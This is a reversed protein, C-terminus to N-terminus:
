KKDAPYIVVMRRDGAGESSTRVGPDEALSLHVIRRERSSMPSLRFPQHSERVRDAAVRATMKLEELRQARFGACDLRVHEHFQPPLHLCRVLLYEMAQIVEANRALLIGEDPGSFVFEIDPQGDAETRQVKFGVALHASKILLNLLREAEEVLPDVDLKGERLFKTM